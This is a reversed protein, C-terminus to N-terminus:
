RHPLKKKWLASKDSLTYFLIPASSFHSQLSSGAAQPKERGTLQTYVHIYTYTQSHTYMHVNTPIHMCTHTYTLNIFSAQQLGREAEDM